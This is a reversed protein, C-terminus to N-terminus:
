VTRQVDGFAQTAVADAHRHEVEARERRDISRRNEGEGAMAAADEDDVLVRSGAADALADGRDDLLFRELPEVGRDPDEPREVRRHRVRWWELGEEQGALGLDLARRPQQERVLPRSAPA